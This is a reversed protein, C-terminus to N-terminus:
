LLMRFIDFWLYKVLYSHLGSNVVNNETNRNINFGLMGVTLPNLLDMLAGVIKNDSRVHELLIIKGEKKCVRSIEKLEKVPDPVSCFVYSAIITDFTNTEFTASQIDMQMFKINPKNKLKKIAKSLMGDSLDIATM